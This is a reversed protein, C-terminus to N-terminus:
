SHTKSEEDLVLLGPDRPIRHREQRLALTSKWCWGDTLQLKFCSSSVGVQFQTQEQLGLPNWPCFLVSLSHPACIVAHTQIQCGQIWTRAQCRKARRCQALHQDDRLSIKWKRYFQTKTLTFNKICIFFCKIEYLIFMCFINAPKAGLAIGWGM